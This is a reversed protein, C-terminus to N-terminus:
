YRDNVRWLLLSYAEHQECGFGLRKELILDVIGENQLQRLKTLYQTLYNRKKHYYYANIDYISELMYLEEVPEIQLVLKPRQSVLYNLFPRWMEGLQEFSNCSFVAFNRLNPLKILGDLSIMDFLIGSLNTKIKKNLVEMIKLSPEVWDTGFINIKPFSDRLLVLNKSTGCGFEIISEFESFYENYLHQLIANCLLIEIHPNEATVFKGKFRMVPKKVYQPVLADLNFPESSINDHIEEWGKEWDKIRDEKGTQKKESYKPLEKFLKILRSESELRSDVRVNCNFNNLFFSKVDQSSCNSTMESLNDYISRAQEPSYKKFIM